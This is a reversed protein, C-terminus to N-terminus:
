VEQLFFLFNREKQIQQKTVYDKIRKVLACVCVPYDGLIRHLKMESIIM